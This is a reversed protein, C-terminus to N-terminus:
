CPPPLYPGVRSFRSPRVAFPLSFFFPLPAHQKKPRLHPLAEASLLLNSFTATTPRLGLRPPFPLSPFPHLPLSPPSPISSNSASASASVSFLPLILLTLHHARLLVPILFFLKWETPCILPRYLSLSLFRSKLCRCDGGYSIPPM